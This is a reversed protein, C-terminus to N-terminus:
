AVVPHWTSHSTSKLSYLLFPSQNLRWKCITRAWAFPDNAGCCLDLCQGKVCHDAAQLEKEQGERESGLRGAEYLKEPEELKLQGNNGQIFVM